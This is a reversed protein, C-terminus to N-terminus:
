EFLRSYVSKPNARLQDVSGDEVLMGDDFCLIRSVGNLSSPRHAIVIVTCSAKILELSRQIAQESESDLANTAEDLMLVSPNSALARAIAIRQAQGTSLGGNQEALITEYGAPLQLIFDHANARKSVEVIEEFSMGPRGIAINNAISMSFLRTEPFVYAIRNRLSSNDITAIDFGDLRIRGHTPVLLRLALKAFTSKGSGSPGIVGVVEGPKISVSIARVAARNAGPYSYTVAEMDLQGSARKLVTGAQSKEPSVDLIDGLRRVSVGVQQLESWLQSIRLIPGTIQGALMNFAILAGLSMSGGIVESVGVYIIAITTLKTILQILAAGVATINTVRITSAIYNPLLREWRGAFVNELALTKVTSAGSVCEVLFSQSKASLRFKEELRRTLEPMIAITIVVYIPLTALVVLTLTKSYSWMVVLFVFSFAFDLVAMLVSSTLFARITELEKLRAISEGVSNQQFYQQPLSILHRFLRAGFEIDLKGGLIGSAISRIAGLTVDFISVVVVAITLVLLTQPAQSAVVKDTIAQFFLPLVLGLINIAITLVVVEIIARKYKFLTPLFWTLDYKKSSQSVEISPAILLIQGGSIEDLEEISVGEVQGGPWLVKFTLEATDENPAASGVIFCRHDTTFGIAPLGIQHNKWRKIKTWKARLNHKSCILAFRERFEDPFQLLEQHYDTSIRNGHLAAISTLANLAHTVMDDFGTPDSSRSNM